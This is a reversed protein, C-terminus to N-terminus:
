RRAAGAARALAPMLREMGPAEHAPPSPVLGDVFGLATFGEVSRADRSLVHVPVWSPDSFRDAIPNRPQHDGLIVVLSRDDDPLRRLYEDIARLSYEISAVYGAEYAAGSMLYNGFRRAPTRALSSGDGLEDWAVLPPVVNWPVHSTTLVLEVFLPTTARAVEQRDVFDIAFQDPVFSWGFRPGAYGFSRRYYSADFAYTREFRPEDEDTNGAAIVTRYGAERLLKPLCRVDSEFLAAFRKQNDIRVGCLFTADAMWSGSGFVPSRVYTSRMHYGARALSAAEAAVFPTFRTALATRGFLAAGYSEVVFVYIHPPRTAPAEDLGRNGVAEDDLRQATEHLSHQWDLALGIQKAAEVAVPRRVGAYAAGLGFYALTAAVLVVRRAPVLALQRRLRYLGRYPLAVALAAGAVAVLMWVCFRPLPENDFLLKVLSSVYRVDVVVLLDQGFERRLLGQGIAVLFIFLAGLAAVVAIARDIRRWAAPLYSWAVIGAVLLVVDGTQVGLHTRPEPIWYFASAGLQMAALAAMVLAGRVLEAGTAKM